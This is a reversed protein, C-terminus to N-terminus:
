SSPEDRGATPRRRQRASEFALVTGAMAVNISEVRGAMPIFVAGDVVALDDPALGHAENGLVVAVAGALDADDYATDAHLDCALVNMGAEHLRAVVDVLPGAALVPIRFLSGAAARVCKPNWPDVADACSVVASAGAAESVRVLTGFNGPDGVGAAVLVLGALAASGAGPPIAALAAVSQPTVPSTVKALAGEEVPRVPVDHGRARDLAWSAASPEAYVEVVDLGADFAEGLLTPGDVVFQGADARARRRGSLRRLHQLPRSRPGLPASLDAARAEPPM